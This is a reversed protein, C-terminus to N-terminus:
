FPFRQGCEILLWKGSLDLALSLGSKAWGDRMIRCALKYGIALAVDVAIAFLKQLVVFFFRTKLCVRCSHLHSAMPLLKPQCGAVVVFITGCQLQIIRQPPLILPAFSIANCFASVFSVNRPTQPSLCLRPRGFMWSCCGVVSWCSNNPCTRIFPHVAWLNLLLIICKKHVEQLKIM